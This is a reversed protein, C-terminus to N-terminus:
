RVLAAYSADSLRVLSWTAQEDSEEIEILYRSGAELEADFPADVAGDDTM